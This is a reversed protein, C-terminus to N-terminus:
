FRMISTTPELHFGTEDRASAPPRRRPDHRPLASHAAAAMAAIAFMGICTYLAANAVGDLPAAHPTLHIAGAALAIVAPYVPEAARIAIWGGCVAAIALGIALTQQFYAGGDLGAVWWPATTFLLAITLAAGLLAFPM